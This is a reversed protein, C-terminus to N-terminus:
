LMILVNDRFNFSIRGQYSHQLSCEGVITGKTGYRTSDHFLDQWGLQLPATEAAKWSRSLLDKNKRMSAGKHSM